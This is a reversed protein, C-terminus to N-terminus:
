IALAVAASVAIQYIVQSVDKTLQLAKLDPKALVFIEDGPGIMKKSDLKDNASRFMGNPKMVLTNMDELDANTGGAQEVYGEITEGKTYTIATPFLVEGHIMVLNRKPPIVVKDGQKLVVTAPDYGDSLLVQGRPQVQRARDIWRLVTDAEVQRLEATDKTGSRATLVSQELAALSSMLMEKQREAVAQRFLQVAKKDSLETFVVQDLLDKLTAGWPLVIETRSEHEGTVEVSISDARLQSTVKILTGPTVVVGDIETVAYQRAGVRTGNPEVLTVHTAREGGVVAALIEKLPTNTEKLEYKGSFSVEGEVSVDGRKRDVFIVDGDQLQIDPMEGREIFAYLDVRYLTEGHRKVEIYRYSGLDERIGGAQDIYRLISDASQGEYLGPKVVLGSLFVKVTQSSALTVYAEVNSKYVREVSKLVVANLNRNEVGLVRVPGVKPIFINGQADVVAQQQFDLGGWLQVLLTDGQSIRYNPNIGTFSADRFGGKFLWGGYVRSLNGDTLVEPKADPVEPQVDLAQAKGISVVLLLALLVWKQM